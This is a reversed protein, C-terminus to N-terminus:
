TSSLCFTNGDVDNFLAFTGWSEETPEQTFIVGKKKLAAATKKVDNTHFVINSFTGIRDEFGEPTFLVIQTDGDPIKLKIWRQGAGFEVDTVVKFGLIETYFKLAKKQDKVYIGVHKVQTIM